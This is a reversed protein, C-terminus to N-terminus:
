LCNLLVHTSINCYMYFSKLFFYLVLLEFYENIYKCETEQSEQMDVRREQVQCKEGHDLVVLM